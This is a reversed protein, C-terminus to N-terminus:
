EFRVNAISGPTATAMNELWGGSRPVPGRRDLLYRPPETCRERRDSDPVLVPRRDRRRAELGDDYRGDQPTRDANIWRHEVAVHLFIDFPLEVSKLARLYLTMALPDGIHAARFM